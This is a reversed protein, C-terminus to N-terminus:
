MEFKGEPVLYTFKLLAQKLVYSFGCSWNSCLSLTIKVSSTSRGPIGSISRRHQRGCVDPPAICVGVPRVGRFGKGIARFVPDAEKRVEDSGTPLESV